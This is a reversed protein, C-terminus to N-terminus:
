GRKLSENTPMSTHLGANPAESRMQGPDSVIGRAQETIYSTIGSGRTYIERLERGSGQETIYITIRAERRYIDALKEGWELRSLDLKDFTEIAEKYDYFTAAMLVAYAAVVDEIGRGHKATRKRYEELLIEPGETKALNRLSSNERFHQYLHGATNAFLYERKLAEIDISIM